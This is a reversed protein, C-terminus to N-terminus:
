LAKSVDKQRPYGAIHELYANSEVFYALGTHLGPDKTSLRRLNKLRFNADLALVLMFRYRCLITLLCAKCSESSVLM